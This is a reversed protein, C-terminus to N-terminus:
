VEKVVDIEPRLVGATTETGELSVICSKNRGSYESRDEREQDDSQSVDDDVALGLPPSDPEETRHREPDHERDDGDDGEAQTQDQKDEQRQDRDRRSDVRVQLCLLYVGALDDYLPRVPGTPCVSGSKRTADPRSVLVSRLVSRGNEALGIAPGDSM